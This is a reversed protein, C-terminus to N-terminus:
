DSWGSVKGDRFHVFHRNTSCNYIWMSSTGYRSTRSTTDCPRGWSAEVDAKSMGMAIDGRLIAARTNEKMGDGWGDVYRQRRDRASVCGVLGAILILILLKKM